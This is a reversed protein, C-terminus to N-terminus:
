IPACGVVQWHCESVPSGGDLCALYMRRRLLRGIVVFRLRGTDALHGFTWNCRGLERLRIRRVTM